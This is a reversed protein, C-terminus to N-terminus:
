LLNIRQRFARTQNVGKGTKPARSRDVCCHNSVQDLSVDTTGHQPPKAQPSMVCLNDTRNGCTVNFVGNALFAVPFWRM